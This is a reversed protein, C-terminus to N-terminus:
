ADVEAMVDDSVDFAVSDLSGVVGMFAKRLDLCCPVCRPGESTVLPAVVLPYPSMLGATM